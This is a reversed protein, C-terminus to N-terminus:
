AVELDRDASGDIPADTTRRSRDNARTRFRAWLAAGLMVVSLAGLLPQLPRFYDLAGSVGVALVVLKNCVPCGAALFSLVGGAGARGNVRCSQPWPVLYTAALPGLLGGPLVLALLNWIDAAVVRQFLPNPIVGTLVGVVLVYLGAVGVSLLGFRLRPM